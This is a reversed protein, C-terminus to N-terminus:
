RKATANEEWWEQWKKVAKLRVSASADARYGQSQGTLQVLAELVAQRVSVEEDGLAAILAPITAWSALRSLSHASYARLFPDQDQLLAAIARAATDGGLTTLEVLAAFRAGPDKSSLARIWQDRVPDPAEKPDGAPPDRRVPDPPPEVAEDMRTLVAPEEKRAVEAQQLSTELAVLRRAVSDIGEGLQRREDTGRALAEDLTVRARDRLDGERILTQQVSSFGDLLGDIRLRLDSFGALAATAGAEQEAALFAVEGSLAALEPNVPEARSLFGLASEPVFGRLVFGAGGFLLVLLLVGAWRAGTAGAPRPVVLEQFHLRCLAKGDSFGAFGEELDIQPISENCRDCFLIQMAM